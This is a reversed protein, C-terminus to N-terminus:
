TRKSATSKNSARGGSSKDFMDHLESFFSVTKKAKKKPSVEAGNTQDNNVPSGYDLKMPPVASLDFNPAVPMTPSFCVAAILSYGFKSSYTCRINVTLRQQYRLESGAPTSLKIRQREASETLLLDRRKRIADAAARKASGSSFVSGRDM